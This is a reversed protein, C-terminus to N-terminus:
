KSPAEICGTVTTGDRESATAGPQGSCRFTTPPQRFNITQQSKSHRHPSRWLSSSGKRSINNSFIRHRFGFEVQRLFHAASGCFLTPPFPRHSDTDCDDENRQGNQEGPNQQEHASDLRNPAPPNEGDARVPDATTGLRPGALALEARPQLILREILKCHHKGEIRPSVAATRCSSRTMSAGCIPRWGWSGFQSMGGTQPRCVLLGPPIAGAPGRTEHM